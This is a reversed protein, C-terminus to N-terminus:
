NTRSSWNRARRPPDALRKKSGTAEVTEKILFASEVATCILWAITVHWWQFALGSRRSM